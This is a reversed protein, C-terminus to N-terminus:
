CASDVGEACLRDLEDGLTTDHNCGNPDPADQIVQVSQQVQEDRRRREQELRLLADRTQRQWTRVARAQIEREHSAGVSVGWQYCAWGTSLALALVLGSSALLTKIKIL